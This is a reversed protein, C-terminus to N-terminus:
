RAPIGRPETRGGPLHPGKGTHLDFERRRPRDGRLPVTMAAAPVVDSETLRGKGPLESALLEAAGNVVRSVCGSVVGTGEALHWTLVKIVGDHSGNAVARACCTKLRWRRRRAPPPARGHGDEWGSRVWYGDDFTETEGTHSSALCQRWLGLRGRLAAARDEERYGLPGRRTLATVCSFPPVQHCVPSGHAHTRQRSRRDSLKCIMTLEAARTGSAQLAERRWKRIYSWRQPRPRPSPRDARQDASYARVLSGIKRRCASIVPRGPRRQEMIVCTARM